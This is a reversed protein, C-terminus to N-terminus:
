PDLRGIVLHRDDQDHYEAKESLSWAHGVVNGESDTYLRFVGRGVGGKTRDTLHRTDDKGHYSKSEDIITVAWQRTDKEEPETADRREPKEVVIMVHGTDGGKNEPDDPTYKIAIIDGPKVDQVHEIRQFRKGDVIADHYTKALPRKRHLWSRFTDDDYGYAQRLLADLLGSCDTRCEAQEAGDVGKWRVVPDDHTYSTEDPSVEDVLKIAWDLHSEKHEAAAPDALLLASLLAPSVVLGTRALAVTRSM